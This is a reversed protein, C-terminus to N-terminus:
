KPAFVTVPTLAFPLPSASLWAWEINLDRRYLILTIGAPM